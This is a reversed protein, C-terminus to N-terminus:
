LTNGAIKAQSDMYRGICLGILMGLALGSSVGMTRDILSGGAVGFCMGLAMGLGTYYGSTTLSFTDKLYTEFKSLAKTYQRKRSRPNSELALSDLETEIAQTEEESFNRTKLKSLIHLFKTYVKLESKKTTESVLKEFISHAKTITM